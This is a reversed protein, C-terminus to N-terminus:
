LIKVSEGLFIELYIIMDEVKNEINRQNQIYKQVILGKWTSIINPWDILDHAALNLIAGDSKYNQFKVTKEFERRKSSMHKYQRPIYRYAPEEKELPWIGLKRSPREQKEEIKIEPGRRRKSSSLDIEMAEINNKHLEKNEISNMLAVSNNSCIEITDEDEEVYSELLFKNNIEWQEDESIDNDEKDKIKAKSYELEKQVERVRNEIQKSVSENKKIPICSKKNNLERDKKINNLRYIERRFYIEKDRIANWQCIMSTKYEDHIKSLKKEYHKIENDIDLKEMFECVSHRRNEELKSESSSVELDDLSQEKHDVFRISTM